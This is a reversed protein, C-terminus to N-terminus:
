QLDRSNRRLEESSSEESESPDSAEDQSGPAITTRTPNIELWSEPVRSHKSCFCCEITTQLLAYELGERIPSYKHPDLLRSCGISILNPTAYHLKYTGDGARTTGVMPTLPGKPHDNIDPIALYAKRPEGEDLSELAEHDTVDENPAELEIDSSTNYSKPPRDDGDSEKSSTPSATSLM